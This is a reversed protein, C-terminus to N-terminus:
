LIEGVTGTVNASAVINSGGSDTALEFDFDYTVTDTGGGTSYNMGYTRASTLQQWTNPVGVTSGGNANVTFRVWTIASVSGPLVYSGVPTIDAGQVRLVDLTGDTNFRFTVGYTTTAGGQDNYSSGLFDLAWRTLAASSSALIISM